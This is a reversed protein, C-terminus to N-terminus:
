LMPILVGNKQYHKKFPRARDRQNLCSRLHRFKKEPSGGQNAPTRRNPKHHGCTSCPNRKPMAPCAPIRSGYPFNPLVSWLRPVHADRGAAGPAQAARRRTAGRARRRRRATQREEGEESAGSARRRGSGSRTRCRCTMRRTPRRTRAFGAAGRTTSCRWMTPSRVIKRRSGATVMADDLPCAHFFVACSAGADAEGACRRPVLRARAAASHLRRRGVALVAHADRRSSLYVACRARRTFSRADSGHYGGRPRGNLRARRAARAHPTSSRSPLRSCRSVLSLFSACCPPADPTLPLPELPTM